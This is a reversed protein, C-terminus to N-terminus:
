PGLHGEVAVKVDDHVKLAGFLGTYPKIGWDSQRVVASGSVTGADDVVLEFLIPRISGALTLDGEVTIRDGAPAHELRTSRFRVDRRELVEEDITKHISLKDADGLPKIGGTGEQVRLSTADADLEVSAARGDDGVELSGQWSTVHIM